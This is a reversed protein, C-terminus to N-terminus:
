VSITRFVSFDDQSTTMITGPKEKDWHVEKYHQHGAHIFLLQQPVNNDGLDEDTGDGATEVGFDWITVQHDEGSAAFVGDETPHWEISTIPKTHHKLSALPEAAGGSSQIKRTDWMKIIGDDGGTLLFNTDVPCWSMVNIDNNHANQVSLMSNHGQRVDWVRISRDVSVSCFTFDSSPQFHLDEVSDTHDTFPIQDVVFGTESPKWYHIAGKCDGSLLSASESFSLAYGEERHGSFVHVPKMAEKKQKEAVMWKRKENVDNLAKVAPRVDYVSVQKRESFVAAFNGKCRVRNVAGKHKLKCTAVQALESDDEDEDESDSEEDEGKNGHVNSLKSFMVHNKNGSPAQTGTALYSTQPYDKSATAPDVGYIYDFSMCSASNLGFVERMVYCSEDAELVTGKPLEKLGPMFVRKKSADDGDDIIEDDDSDEDDDDEQNEDGSEVMEEDTSAEDGSKLEEELFEENKPIEVSQVVAKREEEM